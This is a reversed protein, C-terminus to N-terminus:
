VHGAIQHSMSNKVWPGTARYTCVLIFILNNHSQECNKNYYLFITTFDISFVENLRKEEFYANKSKLINYKGNDRKCFLLVAIIISIIKKGVLGLMIKGM